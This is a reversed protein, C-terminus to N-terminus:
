EKEAKFIVSRLSGCTCTHSEGLCLKSMILGSKALELLERVESAELNHLGKWELEKLRPLDIM